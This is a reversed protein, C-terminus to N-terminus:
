PYLRAFKQQLYNILAAETPARGIAKEILQEPPLSNGPMHITKALWDIAPSLRGAAIDDDLGPLQERMVAFLEAAYINGLSYTPFYGFLGVSWHVDQLVGHAADPVARGFDREFRHNWESELADVELGGEILDRELQYRLIIHLNYHVEDAETRIFGTQVDNAAAFLEDPSAIGFDGFADRMAPYLVEMFARSRGIQNEFMRSQSEHVGMSCHEGIPTYRADKAIQQEYVAHGVEHITSYICGFPEAEDVRTTIRVDAGSGMSFPHVSLDLRGADFDYAFIEALKHCLATQADTAFPGSIQPTAGKRSAIDARLDALPQRLREFLPTLVATTMGPEYDDLLADYLGGGNALCRAEERRLDVVKKLTPAFDSFSNAARASAWIGQAESTLKAIETALAEPIKVAREHQRRILDLNRTQAPTLAEESAAQLWDAVRPATRRAHIVAQLAGSQEARQSAGKPPMMTEQDWEMVGAVEALAMTRANYDNLKDYASHTM